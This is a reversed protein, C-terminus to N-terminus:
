IPTPTRRVEAINGFHTYILWWEGMRHVRACETPGVGDEKKLPHSIDFGTSSNGSVFHSRLLRANYQYLGQGLSSRYGVGVGDPIFLVLTALFYVRASPLCLIRSIIIVTVEQLYLCEFCEM